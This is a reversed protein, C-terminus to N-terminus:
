AKGSQLLDKVSGILKSSISEANIKFRGESIAQKIQNVRDLNVVPTAALSDELTKIQSYLPRLQVSPAETRAIPQATRSGQVKGSGPSPAVPKLMSDIKM